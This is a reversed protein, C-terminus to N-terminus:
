QEPLRRQGGDDDSVCGLVVFRLVCQLISEWDVVSGTVGRCWQCLLRLLEYRASLLRSVAPIPAPSLLALVASLVQVLWTLRFFATVIFCIGFVCRPWSHKTQRSISGFM